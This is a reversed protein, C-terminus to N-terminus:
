SAPKLHEAIQILIAVGKDFQNNAELYNGSKIYRDTFDFVETALHLQRTLYTKDLQIPEINRRASLSRRRERIRDLSIETVALRELIDQSYRALVKKEKLKISSKFLRPYNNFIGALAYYSADKASVPIDTNFPRVILIPDGEAIILEYPAVGGHVFEGDLLGDHNFDGLKGVRAYGTPYPGANNHGGILGRRSKESVPVQAIGTVFTIPMTVVFEPLGPDFGATLEFVLNANEDPAVSEASVSCVFLQVLQGTEPEVINLVFGANVNENIIEGNSLKGDVEGVHLTEAFINPEEPGNNFLSITGTLPATVVFNDLSGAQLSHVGLDGPGYLTGKELTITFGEALLPLNLMFCCTATIILGILRFYKIHFHCILEIM